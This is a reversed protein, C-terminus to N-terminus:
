IVICKKAYLGINWIISAYVPDEKTLKNFKQVCNLHSSSYENIKRSTRYNKFKRRMAKLQCLGIEFDMDQIKEKTSTRNYISKKNWKLINQIAMADTTSVVLHLYQM